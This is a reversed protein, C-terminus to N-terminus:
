IRVSDSLKIKCIGQLMFIELQREQRFMVLTQYCVFSLLPPSLLHLSKGEEVPTSALSLALAQKLAAEDEDYSTSSAPRSDADSDEDSRKRRKGHSAKQRPQNAVLEESKELSSSDDDEMEFIEDDVHCLHSFFKDVKTPRSFSISHKLGQVSRVSNERVRQVITSASPPPNRELLWNKM